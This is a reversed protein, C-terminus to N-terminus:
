RASVRKAALHARTAELGEPSGIEYFRQSVEYGALDDNALLRQYVAVLDFAQDAAPGDFASKRFAGLGYDIHRMDPTRDNKDYRVVRGDSYLVNSRDFRDDNRYVTMLGAKGSALFERQIDAYDCELYSDGYVVLFPDDLSPLAARMAGGTGLRTPGDFVYRLKVGWRAGDGLAERIMDGLHGVVFTIDTLGHRRLLEIQHVAFPMGCVDILSKPVRETIPQLRTALGGALVAVPLTM